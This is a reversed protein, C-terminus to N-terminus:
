NNINSYYQAGRVNQHQVNVNLITPPLQEVLLDRNNQLITKLVGCNLQPYDLALKCANEIRVIPYIRKLEIIALASKYATEPYASQAIMTSVYQVTHEGIQKAHNAFFAPSWSVYFQNDSHLHEKITTYEGLKYSLLHFAIQVGDYYAELCSSKTRVLIQKGIFRYPISYYNKYKSAFVYGMKQVKINKCDWLEFAETPLPKLTAREEIFQDYRSVKKNSLTRTNLIVLQAAIAKNLTHIDFSQQHLLAYYVSNYVIRVASEVMAKDKPSYSRTPTITTGYHYALDKFSKNLVPETKSARTVASKLNDTTISQPVGGIFSLCKTTCDIFDTLNQSMTAQVYIYQSAPLIGIFVEVERIEGTDKDIIHLHKGAFDLFLKEGYPHEIKFSGKPAKYIRHFHAYFQSRSLGNAFLDMYTHWHNEITFGTYKHDHQHTSFYQELEIQQESKAVKKVPFLVNFESDTLKLIDEIQLSLTKVRTIYQSIALRHINLTRSIFRQSKGESYLRLIQKIDMNKIRTNAM